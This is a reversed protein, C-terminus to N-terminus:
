NPPPAAKPTGPPPAGPAQDGKAAPPGLQAKALIDACRDKEGTARDALGQAALSLGATMFALAGKLGGKAVAGAGPLPTSLTGGLETIANTIASLSLGFGSRPKSGFKFKLGETRLDVEGNATIVLKESQMLVPDITMKGDVLDVRAVTCELKTTKDKAGFPNLSGGIKSLLDSGFMDIAGSKMEGPSQTFLLTGNAGAVMARASGGKARLDVLISTPPTAAPDLGEAALLGAKLERVDLRVRLNAV